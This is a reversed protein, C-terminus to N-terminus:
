SSVKQSKIKNECKVCLILVIVAALVIIYNWYRANCYTTRSAHLTGSSQTITRVHAHFWGVVLFICSSFNCLQLVKQVSYWTYRLYMLFKRMNYWIIMYVKFYNAILLTNMCFWAHLISSKIGLQIHVSNQIINECKVVKIISLRLICFSATSTSYTVSVNLHRKPSMQHNFHSIM